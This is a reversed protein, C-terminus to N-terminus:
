KELGAIKGDATTKLSIWATHIAGDKEFHTDDPFLRQLLSQVEGKDRGRVCADALKGLAEARNTTEYQEQGRYKNTAAQDAAQYLWWGNSGILLVSLAVPLLKM